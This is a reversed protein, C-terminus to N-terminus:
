PQEEEADRRGHSARAASGDSAPVTERTEPMALWFLAGCLAAIAALVLFAADYGARVAIAGAM